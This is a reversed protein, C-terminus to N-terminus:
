ATGTSTLEYTEQIQQLYPILESNVEDAYEIFFGHCAKDYVKSQVPNLSRGAYCALWRKLSPSLPVANDQKAWMLYTSIHPHLTSLETVMAENGSLPFHLVSQWFSEFIHARQQNLAVLAASQELCLESGRNYFDQKYVSGNAGGSRLMSRVLGHLCSCSRIISLPGINMLGAPSFLTLSLVEEGYMHCYLAAIAGGMSHAIIHYKQVKMKIHQILERLQAVHNANTYASSGDSLINNAPPESYGRGFLDYRLVSFGAETLASAQHDFQRYYGGIGHVCVVLPETDNSTSTRNFTRTPKELVYHTGRFFIGAPVDPQEEEEKSTSSM